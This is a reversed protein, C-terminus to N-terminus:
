SAPIAPSARMEPARLPSEGTMARVHEARGTLASAAYMLAKAKEDSFKVIKRAEDGVSGSIEYQPLALARAMEMRGQLQNTYVERHEPARDPSKFIRDISWAAASASYMGLVVGVSFIPDVFGAADGVLFFGPGAVQTSGYSYDRVVRVSGECFQAETLLEALRPVAACQQLFYQEWTRESKKVDKMTEMPVVFGISVCDRLMIHWSWGWKGADPLSTVFTTPPVAHVEAAPHVLGDAAYYKSNRFYGWVSMFRFADDISRVGLQRGVVASQGSADVVIRCDLTQSRGSEGVPRCAIRAGRPASFDCEGAAVEEFIQVGQARANELLIHDFRDREVHLAPRTYGFDKFAIRRTTGHWDVTGGAKRVFGDALIKETAGAKDCYKWFDPILSEGVQPRPHRQKDFLAVHYGSQALYTATLSGSPGGGIVAVDCSDPINM